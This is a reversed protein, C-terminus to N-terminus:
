RKPPALVACAVRDGSNGSPDTKYDDAKAHVVLSTGDADALANTAGSMTVGAVTFSTTAAGAQGIDFNALDGLHAGMPNDRGHQKSEPNWHAGASEFKPGECLGKEHLHVGHTGAAIASADVKITVGNADESLTVTGVPRGDTGNLAITQPAASPEAMAPPEAVNGAPEEAKQSCAVLATGAFLLSVALASRHTM